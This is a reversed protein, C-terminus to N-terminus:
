VIASLRDLLAAQAPNIRRGAEALGFWAARDVEPFEQAKGSRPPWELTFTSSRIAAADLDGAVAWRPSSRAM